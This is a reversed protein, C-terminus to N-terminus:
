ATRAMLEVDTLQRSLYIVRRIHGDLWAAKTAQRARFGIALQGRPPTTSGQVIATDATMVGGIASKETNGLFDVSVAVKRFAGSANQTGFPNGGSSSTQNDRRRAVADYFNANVGIGPADGVSLAVAMYTTGDPFTRYETIFTGGDPNYPFLSALLTTEDAARTVQAGATPIYSSPFLGAELQYGSIRLPRQRNTAYRVIGSANGSAGATIASSVRYLGGGLDEVVNITTYVNGQMNLCFDNLASAGAAAGFVPPGLSDDVQVFFSLTYATGSVYTANKYAYALTGDAAFAIGTNNPLRPFTSAVIGARTTADTVGNQFDSNLLLNTRQAEARIGLPEKAANYECRLATGSRFLGDSGMVMKASPAARILKANPDGMWNNGPTSRDRIYGRMNIFDFVAGQPENALLAIAPDLAMPAPRELFRIVSM